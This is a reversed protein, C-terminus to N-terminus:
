LASMTRTSKLEEITLFSAVMQVRLDSYRSWNQILEAQLQMVM